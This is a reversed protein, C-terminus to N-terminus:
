LRSGNNGINSLLASELVSASISADLFIKFALKRLPLLLYFLGSLDSFSSAESGHSSSFETPREHRRHVRGVASRSM